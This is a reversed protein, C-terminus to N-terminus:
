LTMWGITCPKLEGIKLKKEFNVFVVVMYTATNNTKRRHLTICNLMSLSQNEVVITLVNSM